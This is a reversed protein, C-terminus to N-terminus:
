GSLKGRMIFKKIEKKYTFFLDPYRAIKANITPNANIDTQNIYFSLQDMVEKESMFQM